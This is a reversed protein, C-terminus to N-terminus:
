ANKPLLTRGHILRVRRFLTTAMHYGIECTLLVSLGFTPQRYRPDVHTVMYVLSPGIVAAAVLWRYPHGACFMYTLAALTGCGILCYACAKFLRGPANPSWMDPGPFWYYQFRHATLALFRVPDCGIFELAQRQKDRMYALEGLQQLRQCEARTGSPHWGRTIKHPDDYYTVFTKGNAQPNNGIWLEIGFNSRVPVFGGLVVYNRWTWPAICILATVIMIGAAGAIRLRRGSGTLLEGGIMLAVAPLLIPSLLMALGILLGATLALVRLSVERNGSRDHLAVFTLLLGLLVLATYPQEWGGWSEVWLNCPSLALLIAAGYGAAPQLGLRRALAPMLAIVTATVCSVAVVQAIWGGADPLGFLRYLLALLFVYAPAVHASPGSTDSYVNALEGHVVLNVAAREMEDGKYGADPCGKVVLGYLIRPAAALVFLLVFAVVPRTCFRAM